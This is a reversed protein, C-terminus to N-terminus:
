SIRRYAFRSDTGRDRITHFVYQGKSGASLLGDWVTQPVDEYAYLAGSKFRIFLRLGEYDYAYEAVNTSVAPIWNLTAAQAPLVPGRAWPSAM